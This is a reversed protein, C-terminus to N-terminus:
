ALKKEIHDVIDRVTEPVYSETISVPIGFRKELEIELEILELSEIGIDKVLATDEGIDVPKALGQAAITEIVALLIDARSISGNSESAKFEAQLETFTTCIKDYIKYMLDPEQADPRYVVVKKGAGKMWGAETNASRGAPLVLVCVDAAKMAEFDNSFGQEAIPHKLAQLYQPNAWSQWKPDIYSWSFGTQGPGPNRFDYVEHGLKRLAMVISPQYNNRWSSAIYIKM